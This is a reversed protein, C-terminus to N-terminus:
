RVSNQDDKDNLGASRFKERVLKNALIGAKKLWLALQDSLYGIVASAILQGEALEMQPFLWHFIPIRAFRVFVYILSITTLIRYLNDMAFFRTSFDVPTNVSNPNRQKVENNISIMALLLAFFMCATFLPKSGVGILYRIFENM